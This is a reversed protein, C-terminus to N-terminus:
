RTVAQSILGMEQMDRAQQVAQSKRTYAGVLLRFTNDPYELIYPSLGLATLRELETRAEDISGYEGVLNAFPTKKVIAETLGLSKKAALAGDLSEYHGTFVRWWTGGGDLQVKVLYVDLGKGRFEALSNQASEAARCSCLQLSYPLSEVPAEISPLLTREAPTEPGTAPSDLAAVVKPDSPTSEPETAITIPGSRPVVNEAANDAPPLPRIQGAPTQPAQTIATPVAAAIAPRTTPMVDQSHKESPGSSPSTPMLFTAAQIKKWIVMPPIGATFVMPRKETFSMLPKALESLGQLGFHRVSFIIALALLVACLTTINRVVKNTGM